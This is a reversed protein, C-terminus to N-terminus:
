LEYPDERLALQGRRGAVETGKAHEPLPPLDNEGYGPAVWLVEPVPRYNSKLVREEMRGDLFQVTVVGTVSMGRSGKQHRFVKGAPFYNKVYIRRTFDEVGSAGYKYTAKAVARGGLLQVRLTRRLLKVEQPTPEAVWAHLIVSFKYPNRLKLDVKGFFVTADLGPLTYASPRSHSQRELVEMGGYQSAVHLTSSVQCTGGGVGTTLEDGQIEPAWTFGNDLSRPGVRDNFSFTQGPQLIVGDIRSAATVINHSRGVGVGYTVFSTEYEALVLSPDLGALDDLRVSADVDRTRVRVTSEEEFDIAQLADLAAEVDLRRGPEDPIKALRRVDLRADVPARHFGPAVEEVVARARGSDLRWVFPIDWAGRRAQQRERMRRGFGGETGVARARGLTADVDLEIGLEEFSRTFGREEGVFHVLRGRAEERKAVLWAAVDSPPARGAITVGTVVGSSSGYAYATVAATGGLVSGGLVCAAIFAIRAMGGRISTPGRLPM